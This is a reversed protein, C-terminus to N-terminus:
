ARRSIVSARACQIRAPSRRRRYAAMGLVGFGLVALSAAGPEPVATSCAPEGATVPNSGTDYGYGNLILSYPSQSGPDSISLDLWGYETHSGAVFSFPLLLDSGLM